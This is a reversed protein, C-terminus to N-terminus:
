LHPVKRFRNGSMYVLTVNFDIIQTDNFSFVDYRPELNLDTKILYVVGFNAGVILLLGFTLWSLMKIIRCSDNNIPEKNEEASQTLSNVYVYIYYM